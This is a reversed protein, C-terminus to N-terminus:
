EIYQKYYVQIKETNEKHETQMQEKLSDLEQKNKQDMKTVIEKIEEKNITEM